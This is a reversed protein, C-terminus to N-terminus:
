LNFKKQIGEIILTNYLRDKHVISSNQWGSQRTLGPNMTGLTGGMEPPGMVGLIGGM